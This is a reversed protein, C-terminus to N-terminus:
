KAAPIEKDIIKASALCLPIGGGPHVSGGTFYLNKVPRLFNPHRLFASLASNSSNGYLAGYKSLTDNEITVPSAVKEFEIYKEIDTKLLRNIKRIITKRAQSILKQWDQGANYPANVMVFWNECGAPADSSVTKSSIFIYVTPDGSISKRKFLTEFEGLYDSSFLINHLELQPFQKKIGWYFILASSSPELRRLRKKLPHHMMKESVYGVDADSIVLDFPHTEGNITIGTATNNEVTIESVTSGFRFNVKQELALEYLAQVISYMGKEPFFAGLNNELHAIINLTAPAKYPNSGNYTAYRDFLQVLEPSTFNCENDRHMSRYFRIRHIQMFSKLVKWRIFNKLKHLSNFIFIDSTIQYIKEAKHLHKLINEPKENLKETCEQIFKERDAWATLVKGNEYFYKCSIALKSFHFRSHVSYGALEFLEDMLEPLTFLTPGTDFRHGNKTFEGLKGGPKPNKEFVSVEYGKVGLRIAAALGGIGSGIVAAKKM